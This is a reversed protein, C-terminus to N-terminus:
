SKNSRCIIRNRGNQTENVRKYLECVVVVFFVRYFLQFLTSPFCYLFCCHLGARSCTTVVGLKMTANLKAQKSLPSMLLEWAAKVCSNSQLQQKVTIHLSASSVHTLAAPILLMTSIM